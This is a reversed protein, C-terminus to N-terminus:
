SGVVLAILPQTPLYSRSKLLGAILNLLLILGGIITISVNLDSM